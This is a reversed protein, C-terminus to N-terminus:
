DAVLLPDDDKLPQDFKVAASTGSEWVVTGAFCREGIEVVVVSKPALPPANVLGAGTMSINTVIAAAAKGRHEVVCKLYVPKRAPVRRQPLEPVVINGDRDVLPSGGGHVDLLFSRLMIMNRTYSLPLIGNAVKDVTGLAANALDAMQRAAQTMRGAHLQAAGQVGHAEIENLFLEVQKEVLALHSLFAPLAAALAEPQRMEQMLRGWATRASPPRPLHNRLSRPRTFRRRHALANFASGVIATNLAAYHSGCTIDELLVMGQKPLHMPQVPSPTSTATTFRSRLAQLM